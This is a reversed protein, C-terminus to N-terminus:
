WQPSSLSLTSPEPSLLSSGYGPSTAALFWYRGGWLGLPRLPTELLQHSNHSQSLPQRALATATVLTDLWLGRWQRLRAPLFPSLHICNYKAAPFIANITLGVMAYAKCPM